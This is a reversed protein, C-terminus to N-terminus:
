NKQEVLHIGEYRGLADTFTEAKYGLNRLRAIIRPAADGMAGRMCDPCAEMTSEGSIKNVLAFGISVLPLGDTGCCPCRGIRFREAEM